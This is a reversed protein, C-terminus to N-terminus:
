YRGGRGRLYRMAESGSMPGSFQGRSIRKYRSYDQDFRELAQALRQTQEITLELPERGIKRPDLLLPLHQIDISAPAHRVTVNWLAAAEASTLIIHDDEVTPRLRVGLRSATEVLTRITREANM